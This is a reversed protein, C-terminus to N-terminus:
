ADAAEVFEVSDIRLIWLKQHFYYGIQAFIQEFVPEFYQILVVAAFFEVQESDFAASVVFFEAVSLESEVFM